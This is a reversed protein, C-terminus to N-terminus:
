MNHMSSAAIVKVDYGKLTLYHALKITRVRPELDPPMAYHNILWIKKQM